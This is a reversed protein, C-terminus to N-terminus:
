GRGPGEPLVKLVAQAVVASITLGRQKAYARLRAAVDEPMRITVAIAPVDSSVPNTIAHAEQLYRYAQRRSLGFRAALLTAAEARPTVNGHMDFAANLRL